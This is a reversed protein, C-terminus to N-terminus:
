GNSLYGNLQDAVKQLTNNVNLVKESLQPEYESVSELYEIDKKISGIGMELVSVKMKHGIKNILALDREQLARTLTSIFAPTQNYFLTIMQNVFATNGRSLLKIRSLDYLKEDTPAARLSTPHVDDEPNKLNKIITKLLLDEDFPKTVFDNMGLNLCKDIESKFANATLAIIPITWGKERILKTTEFGDLVPMQLDMLIIDFTFASLLSMAEAGNAAETIIAGYHNLSNQVVLRNLENDEVILVRKGTLYFSYDIVNLEAGNNEPDVDFSLQVTFTTGSGKKSSVSIEGHMMHVLEQTIAMGLGTGSHKRNTSDNEQTFKSFITELFSTDMGIGTDQVTILINQSRENNQKVSCHIDVSGRETFKICNSIINILIQRVRLSDGIFRKALDNSIDFKLELGKEVAMSKVIEKVEKFVERLSFPATSLDFVGAEIKSLDLINNVISLLHQSATGANRVYLEQKRTLEMKRLERIMGIIGNLPTRIEHSMNALFNEKTKALKIAEERANVLSIELDKQQSIDLYIGVSGVQVGRESYRPAKSVLWWRENGLKDKVKIEHADWDNLPNQDRVFTIPLLVHNINCGILESHEWNSMRCFANNAYTILNNQDAELLGLKMTAIIAKYKEENIRLLDVANKEQTIDSIIGTFVADGRQTYYTFSSSVYQWFTGKGPIILRSECIFPVHLDRALKNKSLFIHLDEPHIYSIGNAMFEAPSIGFIKEIAPSIYKFKETGDKNFQYEYIAAPINESLGQFQRVRNALAIETQKIETIDTTTGLIYSPKGQANFKTPLAKILLALETGDTHLFSIEQNITHLHGSLLQEFAKNIKKRSDPVICETLEEISLFPQEPPLGLTVKLNTSTIFHNKEADYEFVGGGSGEMAIKWKLESKLLEESKQIQDSVDTGVSIYKSIKGDNDKIPNISLDIWYTSGSKNYNLIRGHFSNGAQLEERIKSITKQDTGPGQLFYGPKKGIVEQLTYGSIECFAKNVWVTKQHADAILVMNSTEESVLSLDRLKEEVKKRQDIQENLYDVISLLNDSHPDLSIKNELDITSISDKLKKISLKKINVEALLDANLQQYEKESIHFSHESLEKDREFSLYSENVAALFKELWPEGWGPEPIFKKIQRELLRHFNM